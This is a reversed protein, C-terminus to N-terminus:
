PGVAVFRAVGISSVEGLAVLVVGLCRMSVTAALVLVGGAILLSAGGPLPLLGLGNTIATIVLVGIVGQILRQEAQDASAVQLTGAYLQDRRSSAQDSEALM